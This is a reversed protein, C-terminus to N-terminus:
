AAGGVPAPTPTTRLRLPWDGSVGDADAARGKSRWHNALSTAQEAAWAIQAAHLDDLTMAALEPYRRAIAYAVRAAALADECSDHAGDHRVGYHACMDPLRRSGKRYTDAHKDLVLPDIVPRPAYEEVGLDIGHRQLECAIMTLDYAANFAVIPIGGATARLLQATVQAVVTGPDAGHEQAHQSTIGHVATAGQPIPIGPNALWTRRRVDPRAAPDTDPTIRVVSATVIRDQLPNLGTSEIDFALMPGLHWGGTM